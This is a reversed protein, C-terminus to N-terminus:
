ASIAEDQEENADSWVLLLRYARRWTQRPVQKSPIRIIKGDYAHPVLSWLLQDGGRKNTIAVYYYGAIQESIYM